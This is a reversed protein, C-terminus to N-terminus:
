VVSKLPKTGCQGAKYQYSIPNLDRWRWWYCFGPMFIGPNKIPRTAPIRVRETPSHFGERTKVRPESREHLFAGPTKPVLRCSLRKSSRLLGFPSACPHASYLGGDGGRPNQVRWLRAIFGRRPKPEVGNERVG